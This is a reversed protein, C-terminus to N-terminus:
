SNSKETLFNWLESEVVQSYVIWGNKLKKIGSVFMGVQSEYSMIELEKNTFVKKM